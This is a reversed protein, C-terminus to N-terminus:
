ASFKLWIILPVYILSGILIGRATNLWNIKLAVFFLLGNFLMSMSMIMGQKGKNLLFLKFYYLPEYETFHMLYYCWFGIIPGILGFLIGTSTKKVM